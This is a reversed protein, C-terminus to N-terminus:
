QPRSRECPSSVIRAEHTESLCYCCHPLLKARGMFAENNIMPDIAAWDLSGRNAAQRCYAADYSAWTAGEFKRSALVITRLYYMFQPAKELFKTSLVTVICEM